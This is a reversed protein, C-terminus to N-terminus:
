KMVLKSGGYKELLQRVVKYQDRRASVEEKVLKSLTKNLLAVKISQCKEYKARGVKLQMEM